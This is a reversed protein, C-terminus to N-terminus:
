KKMEMYACYEKLAFYERRCLGYDAINTKHFDEYRGFIELAEDMAKWVFTCLANAEAETLHLKGTEEILECVFYHNIHNWDSFLENVVLYNDRAKVVMGTEELMERECCQELSEGEEGGGGPIIYRNNKSEYSLLVKGDRVLIGRCAHRLNKVYGLYDDNKLELTKMKLEGETQKMMNYKM